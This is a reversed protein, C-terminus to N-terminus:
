KDEPRPTNEQHKISKPLILWEKNGDHNKCSKGPFDWEVCMKIENRHSLWTSNLMFLGIVNIMTEKKLGLFLRAAPPLNSVNM